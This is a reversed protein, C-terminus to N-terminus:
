YGREEIPTDTFDFEKNLGTNPKRESGFVIDIVYTFSAYTTAAQLMAQPGAQRSLYAGACASGIISNWRDEVGGRCVRTLAHFGSFSASLSAWSKGQTFAKSNWNGIRSQIEKLTNQGLQEESSKKFLFPVGMAGGIIYGFLGGSMYSGATAIGVEVSNAVLLGIPGLRTRMEAITPEYQPDDLSNEYEGEETADILATSKRSNSSRSGRNNTFENLLIDGSELEFSSQSM